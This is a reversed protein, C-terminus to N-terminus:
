IKKADISVAITSSGFIDVAENIFDPNTVAQTNIAVKDAGANLVMRVDDVTRLGGGVTLPIFIDKAANNIVDCLSNRGYLSAVADMYVLEDAGDEYYKQAFKEVRGLM